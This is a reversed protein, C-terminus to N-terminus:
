QVVKLRGTSGKWCWCDGPWFVFRADCPRLTFFPHKPHLLFQFQRKKRRPSPQSSSSESPTSWLTQSWGGLCPRFNMQIWFEGDFELSFPRLYMIRLSWDEGLAMSWMCTWWLIDAENVSHTLMPPHTACSLFISWWLLKRQKTKSKFGKHYVWTGLIVLRFSSGWLIRFPM